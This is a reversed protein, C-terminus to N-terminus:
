NEGMAKSSLSNKYLKIEKKRLDTEECKKITEGSEIKVQEWEEKLLKPGVDEIKEIICNRQERIKDFEMNNLLDILQDNYDTSNNSFKCENKHTHNLRLLISARSCEFEDRDKDTHTTKKYIVILDVLYKRVEQIWELRYSTVTKAYLENKSHKDNIAMIILSIVGGFVAAVVGGTILEAGIM